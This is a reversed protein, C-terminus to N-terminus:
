QYSVNRMQVMIYNLLGIDLNPATLNSGSRLPKKAVTLFGVPGMESPGSAPLASLINAPITFTGAAAPVSCRFSLGAHTATNASSGQILVYEGIADTGTWTITLSQSRSIASGPASANVWTLDAPVTITAIFPGVGGSAGSANELRFMGPNLFDPLTPSGPEIGGIMASYNGLSRPDEPVSQTGAAGTVTLRAGASVGQSPLSERVEPMVADFFDVYEFPQVSCSGLSPDQSVVGVSALLDNAARRLFRADLEDHNGILPAQGVLTLNAAFRDLSIGGITLSGGAQLRAVDAATLLAPDSCAGGQEAIAMSTFNSMVGDVMVSVPQYCGSLGAPVVFVIQDVGACCGSRGAYNVTASQGGVFVQVPVNLHGPLPGGAEGGSVAGMGTGWLTEVQGPKASVLISNVPQDAPTNFNQVIAPGTGAQNRAFIGFSRAVVHIPVAPSTQGNFTLTLTGEGVAVPSPLLAAVQTAVTYIMIAATTTGGVRVSISTGALTLPLPFSSAQTLNLPGLGTGFVIFMSGQAIGSNPLGDRVYSAANVPGGTIVPAAAVPLIVGIWLVLFQFFSRTPLNPSKPM